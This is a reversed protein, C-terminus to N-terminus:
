EVGSRCAGVADDGVPDVNGVDGLDEITFIDARQERRLLARRSLRTARVCARVGVCACDCVRLCM